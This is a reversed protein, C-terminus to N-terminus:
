DRLTHRETREVPAVADIEVEFRSRAAPNSHVIRRDRDFVLVAAPCVDLFSRLLADLALSM